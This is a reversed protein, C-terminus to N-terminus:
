PECRESHLCDVVGPEEDGVDGGYITFDEAKSKPLEELALGLAESKSNANVVLIMEKSYWGGHYEHHVVYSRM